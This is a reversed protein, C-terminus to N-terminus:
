RKDLTLAPHASAVQPSAVRSKAAEYIVGAMDTTDKANIATVAVISTIAAAKQTANAIGLAGSAGGTFPALAGAVAIGGAINGALQGIACARDQGNKADLKDDGLGVLSRLGDAAMGSYKMEPSGAVLNGKQDKSVSVVKPFDDIVDLAVAPASFFGAAACALTTGPNSKVGDWIQRLAGKPNATATTKDSMGDGVETFIHYSYLM